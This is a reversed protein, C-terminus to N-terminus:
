AVQMRFRGLGFTAKAGLHVISGLDFIPTFPGTAEGLLFKGSLGDVRYRTDQRTSARHWQQKQEADPIWEADPFRGLIANQLEAIDGELRLGSWAAIGNVRRLLSRLAAAPHAHAKGAKRQSLPTLMHLVAPADPMWRSCGREICNLSLLAGTGPLPRRGGKQTLAVKLCDALRTAESMAPGFVRLRVVSEQACNDIQLLYPKPLDLSSSLKGRTKFFLDGLSRATTDGADLVDWLAGRVRGLSAIEPGPDSTEMVAEIDVFSFGDRLDTWGVPRNPAQELLQDIEKLM